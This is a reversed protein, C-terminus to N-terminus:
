EAQLRKGDVKMEYEPKGGSMFVEFVVERGDALCKESQSRLKRFDASELFLRLIELREVLSKDEKKLLEAAIRNYERKAQTEVCADLAPVLRVPMADTM